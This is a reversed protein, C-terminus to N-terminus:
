VRGTSRALADAVAAPEYSRWRAAIHQDPRILYCAGDRADYRQALFGQSDCIVPLLCDAYAALHPPACILLPKVPIPALLLRQLAQQTRNDPPQAGSFLALTFDGRLQALWWDDKSAVQIPADQAAAGPQM